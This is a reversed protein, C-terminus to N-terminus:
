PAPRASRPVKYCRNGAGIKSNYRSNVGSAQRFYKALISREIQEQFIDQLGTEYGFPNQSRKLFLFEVVSKRNQDISNPKFTCANDEYIAEFCGSKVQEVQLVPLFQHLRM